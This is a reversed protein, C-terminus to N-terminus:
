LSPPKQTLSSKNKPITHTSRLKNKNYHHERHHETRHEITPIQPPKTKMRTENLYSNM